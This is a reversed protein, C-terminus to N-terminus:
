PSFLSEPDAVPLSRLLIADMFSYIAMNAGIGLALSTIALLTFLRNAAMTRFRLALRPWIAGCNDMGLMARTDEQVLTLNGLERRAAM